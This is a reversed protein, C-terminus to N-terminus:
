APTILLNKELMGHSVGTEVQLCAHLSLIQETTLYIM